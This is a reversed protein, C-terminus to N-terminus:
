FKEDDPNNPNRKFSQEQQGSQDNGWQGQTGKDQGQPNPNGQGQPNPNRQGTGQIGGGQGASENPNRGLNQQQGQQGQGQKGQPTAGTHQQGQQQGQTGTAGAGMAKGKDQQKGQTSEDGQNQDRMRENAM